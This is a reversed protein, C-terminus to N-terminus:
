DIRGIQRSTMAEPQQQPVATREALYAAILELVRDVALDIRGRPLQEQREHAEEPTLDGTPPRHPDWAAQWQMIVPHEDSCGAMAVVIHLAHACDFVHEDCRFLTLVIGRQRGNYYARTTTHLGEPRDHTSLATLVSLSLPQLGLTLDVIPPIDVNM